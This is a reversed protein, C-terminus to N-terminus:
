GPPPRHFRRLLAVLVAIEGGAIIALTAVAAAFPLAPPEQRAAWVVALHLVLLGPPLPLGSWCMHRVLWAVSAARREPALWYARHPLNILGAPLVRVLLAPAAALLPALALVSAILGIYASRPGWGDAHGDAAFHVAMREPLLPCTALVVALAAAQALALIALPHRM